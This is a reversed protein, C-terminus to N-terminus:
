KEIEGFVGNYKIKVPVVTRWDGGKIQSYSLNWKFYKGDGNATLHMPNSTWAFNATDDEEGPRKMEIPKGLYYPLEKDDVRMMLQKYTNNKMDYLVNVFWKGNPSFFNDYISSELLKFVKVRGGWSVVWQYRERGEDLNIVAFPLTPHITINTIEKFLYINKALNYLYKDYIDKLPHKIPKLNTDLIELKKSEYHYIVVGGKFAIFNVMHDFSKEAKIGPYGKSFDIIRIINYETSRVSRSLRVMCLNKSPDIESFHVIQEDMNGSLPYTTVGNTKLDLLRLLRTQTYGMKDKSFLPMYNLDGRRNNAVFDKARTEFRLKDGEFHVFTIANNLSITGVANDIPVPFNSIAKAKFPFTPFPYLQPEIYPTKDNISVNYIPKM